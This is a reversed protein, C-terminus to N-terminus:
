GGALEVAADLLQDVTRYARVRGEADRQQVEVPELLDVVSAAMGLAVTEEARHGILQPPARALAVNRAADAAILERQDEGARLAVLRLPHHLPHPLRQTGERRRFSFRTGASTSAGLSHRAACDAAARRPAL